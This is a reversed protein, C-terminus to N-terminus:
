SAGGAAKRSLQNVNRPPTAADIVLRAIDEPRELASFHGAEPLTVAHSGPILRAAAARDQLRSWDHDGYVLTVPVTIRPYIDRAAIFSPLARVYQTEVNAYGPRKGSRLQELVFDKPLKKPDHFGGGMIGSLITPNALISFLRGAVPIRMGKIVISALLNAREVGQPYDYTNVAIVQRIRDGLETSVTIAVTAGISEGVLTVDKLDLATTFEAVARRLAPEDYCAGPKIESWGLGPFDLAYVTFRDALLPILRQFYDLQTRLTHLLVLAPGTGTKLYRLRTADALTLFDIEGEPSWARTYRDTGVDRM